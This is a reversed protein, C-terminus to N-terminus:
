AMYSETFVPLRPLRHAPAAPRSAAPAILPPMRAVASLAEALVQEDGGSGDFPVEGVGVVLEGDGGALL